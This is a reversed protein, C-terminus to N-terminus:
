RPAQGSMGAGDALAAMAMERGAERAAALDKPFREERSAAKAASDFYDSVYRGYDAFQMTDYACLRKPASYVHAVFSEFLNLATGPGADFYKQAAVKEDVNMTYIVTVPFRRPAITTHGSDYQHYPFLLREAFARMGASLDGFYIPSALVLGDATAVRDLVDSIGDKVACRGFHRGGKVKCAFCSRCGKFDLDYLHVIEADVQCSRVGEAFSECMMATNWRKRPSGNIVFIRKESM